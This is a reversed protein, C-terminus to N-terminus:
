QALIDGYWPLTNKQNFDSLWPSHAADEVDFSNEKFYDNLISILYAYSEPQINLNHRLSYSIGRRLSIEARYYIPRSDSSANNTLTTKNFILSRANHCFDYIQDDFLGYMCINWDFKSMLDQFNKVEARSVLMIQCPIENAPIKPLYEEWCFFGNFLPFASCQSYSRTDEVQTLDILNRTPCSFANRHVSQVCLPNGDAGVSRFVQSFRSRHQILNTLVEKYDKDDILLFIDIDKAEEGRVAARVSGGCFAIECNDSLESALPKLYQYMAVIQKKTSWQEDIKINTKNTSNELVAGEIIIQDMHGISKRFTFNHPAIKFVGEPSTLIYEGAVHNSQPNVM